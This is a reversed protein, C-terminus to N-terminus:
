EESKPRGVESEKQKWLKYKGPLCHGCPRYGKDIAEQESSFFVRNEIKMRKGSACSLTGYIKGPRYGAMKIVGDAILRRTETKREAESNGIDRHDIM